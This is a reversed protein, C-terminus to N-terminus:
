CVILLVPIKLNEVPFKNMEKLVLIDREAEKQTYKAGKIEYNIVKKTQRRKLYM